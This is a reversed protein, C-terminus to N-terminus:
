EVSLQRFWAEITGLVNQDTALHSKRAEVEYTPHRTYASSAKAPNEFETPNSFSTITGKQNITTKFSAITVRAASTEM